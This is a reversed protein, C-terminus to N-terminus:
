VIQGSRVDVPIAGFAHNPHFYDFIDDHSFKDRPFAYQRGDVTEVYWFAGTLTQDKINIKALDLDTVTIQM